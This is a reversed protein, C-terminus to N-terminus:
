VAQVVQNVDALNDHMAGGLVLGALAATRTKDVALLCGVRSCPGSTQLLFEREPGKVNNSSTTAKVMLMVRSPQSSAAIWFSRGIKMPAPYEKGSMRTETPQGELPPSALLFRTMPCHQNPAVAASPLGCSKMEGSNSLTRSGCPTSAVSTWSIPCTAAPGSAFCPGFNTLIIFATPKSPFGVVVPAPSARKVRNLDM